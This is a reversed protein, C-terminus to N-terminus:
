GNVEEYVTVLKQVPQVETCEVEEEYQWPQEDQYETSGKSYNARYFKDEWKFIIEHHVSWRSTGTITDDIHDEYLINLMHHRPIKIKNM